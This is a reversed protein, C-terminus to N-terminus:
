PAAAAMTGTAPPIPTLLPTIRQPEGGAKWGFVTSNWVIRQIYTRTENYPVNEIWVDADMPAEPLWRLVANPGANYAGLVLVFRAGFREYQERMYATGLRLNTPPDFLDEISPTALGHRRAVNRATAPLLQLLGRANAASRARPEYLSEQRMVSWVWEPPLDVARASEVLDNRYTEPRPYLLDFDDFVEARTATAVAMLHWGWDSALRAAELLHVADLDATAENWESRAWASQEILWAERTRIFGPQMALRARAAPDGPRRPQRPAHARDLRESALVAYYGNELALPEYGARAVANRGLKDACRASWYRWRPETALQAPMQAIWRAALEWEGAWLAARVRWEHGREDLAEVPVQRFTDVTQPLRSWSQNLAIERRLEGPSAPSQLYCGKRCAAEFRRVIADASDPDSRALRAFADYIARPELQAAFARDLHAAPSSLVDIWLQYYARQDEPLLKILYRSLGPDVAELALRLRAARAELDLAGSDRLWKIVPTCSEPLSSGTRWMALAEAVLDAHPADASSPDIGARQDIRARLAHCRLSTDARPELYQAQFRPWDGRGALMRLWATRLRRTWPADGYQRLFAAAQAEVTTDVADAPLRGLQWQLREALLYPYLPYDQLAQPDPETTAGRPVAELAQVFAARVGVLPDTAAAPATLPLCAILFLAIRLMVSLNRLIRPGM